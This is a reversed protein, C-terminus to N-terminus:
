PSRANPYKCWRASGTGSSRKCHSLTVIRHHCRCPLHEDIEQGDDHLIFQNWRGLFSATQYVMSPSFIWIYDSRLWVPADHSLTQYWMVRSGICLFTRFATLLQRKLSDPTALPGYQFLIWQFSVHSLATALLACYADAAVNWSYSSPIGNWTRITTSSLQPYTVTQLCCIVSQQASSIIILFFSSVLCWARQLSSIWQPHSALFRYIKHTQEIFLTWWSARSMAQSETSKSSYTKLRDSFWCYDVYTVRVCVSTISVWYHWMCM